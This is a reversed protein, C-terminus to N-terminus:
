WLSTVHDASTDASDYVERVKEVVEGLQAEIADLRTSDRERQAAGYGAGFAGGLMVALFITVGGVTAMNPKGLGGGVAAVVIGVVCAIACAWGTAAGLHRRLRTVGM